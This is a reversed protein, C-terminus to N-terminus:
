PSISGAAQTRCWAAFDEVVAGLRAGHVLSALALMIVVLGAVRRLAPQRLALAARRALLSGILLHPVTALGSAGM